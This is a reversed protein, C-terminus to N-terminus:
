LIDLFGAAVVSGASLKHKPHVFVSKPLEGVLEELFESDTSLGSDFM